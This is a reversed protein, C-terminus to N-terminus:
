RALMAEQNSECPISEEPGTGAGDSVGATTRARRSQDTRKLPRVVAAMMRSKASIVGQMKRKM